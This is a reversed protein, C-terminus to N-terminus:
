NGGTFYNRKGSPKKLNSSSSSRHYSKKDMVQGQADQCGQQRRKYKSSEKKLTHRSKHKNKRFYTM